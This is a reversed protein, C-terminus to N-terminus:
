TWPLKARGGTSASGVSSPALRVAGEVHHDADGTGALGGGEAGDAEGVFVVAVSDDTGGGGALGGAGASLTGADLLVGHSREQIADVTAAEPQVPAGQDHEVFGAHGVIAVEVAEEVVGGAGM